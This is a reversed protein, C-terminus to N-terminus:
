LFPSGPLTAAMELISSKEIEASPPLGQLLSLCVIFLRLSLCDSLFLPPSSPLTLDPRIYRYILPSVVQARQQQDFM